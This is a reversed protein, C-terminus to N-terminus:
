ICMHPYLPNSIFTCIHVHTLYVTEKASYRRKQLARKCFLGIIILLRSMYTYARSVHTCFIGDHIAAYPTAVILLSRLIVRRKQLLARYFLGYEAFSIQLKVSSVLRLWGMNMSIHMYIHIYTHTYLLNVLIYTHANSTHM